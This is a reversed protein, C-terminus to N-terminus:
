ATKYIPGWTQLHCSLYAPVTTHQVKFTVVAMEYIIRQKVPLWHVHARLIHSMTQQQSCECAASKVLGWRQLKAHSPSQVTWFCNILSTSCFTATLCYPWYYCQPQACFSVILRREVWTSLHWTQGTVLSWVPCESALWASPHDFVDAYMPWNSHPEISHLM